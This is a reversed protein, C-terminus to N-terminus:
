ALEAHLGVTHWPPNNGYRPTGIIQVTPGDMVIECHELVAVHSGDGGGQISTARSVPWLTPMNPQVGSVIAVNGQNVTRTLQIKTGRTTTLDM